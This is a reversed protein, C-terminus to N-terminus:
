LGCSDAKEQLRKHHEELTSAGTSYRRTFAERGELERTREAEREDIARQREQREQLLMRAMADNDEMLRIAEQRAEAERIEALVRERRAGNEAAALERIESATKNDIVRQREQELQRELLEIQEQRQALIAEQRVRDERETQLQEEALKKAEERERNIQEEIARQQELIQQFGDAYNEEQALITDEITIQVVPNDPSSYVPPVLENSARAKKEARRAKKLANQEELLRIAEQLRAVEERRSKLEIEQEEQAALEIQNRPGPSSASPSLAAPSGFFPSLFYGVFGLPAPEPPEVTLHTPRNQNDQKNEEQSNM